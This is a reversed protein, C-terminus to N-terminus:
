STKVTEMPVAPGGDPGKKLVPRSWNRQTLYLALLVAGVALGVVLTGANSAQTGASEHMVRLSKGVLFPAQVQGKNGEYTGLKLFVADTGIPTRKKLKESPRDLLDVVYGEQGSMDSLYTRYVWEIGNVEKELRIPNSTLFLGEVRVSLGRIQDPVQGFLPYDVWKFDKSLSSGDVKALTRVLYLYPETATGETLDLPTGDKSKQLMGEFPLMEGPPLEATQRPVFARPGSHKATKESPKVRGMMLPGIEFVLVALLAVAMVGSVVLFKFGRTAWFPTALNPPLPPRMTM